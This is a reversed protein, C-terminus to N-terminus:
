GRYHRPRVKKGFSGVHAEDIAHSRTPRLAKGNRKEETGTSGSDNWQGGDDGFSLRFGVVCADETPKAIRATSTEASGSKWPDQYRTESLGCTASQTQPKRLTLLRHGRELNPTIKISQKLPCSVGM